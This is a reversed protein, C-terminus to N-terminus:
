VQFFIIKNKLNSMANDQRILYRKKKKVTNTYFFYLLLLCFVFLFCFLVIVCFLLLCGVRAFVIFWFTMLGLSTSCPRHM